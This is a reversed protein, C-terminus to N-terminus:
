SLMHKDIIAGSFNAVKMFSKLVDKKQQMVAELSLRSEEQKARNNAVEWPELPGGRGALTTLHIHMHTPGGFNVRSLNTGSLNAGDLKVQHFNAGSLDAGSLDAGSLDSGSFDTDHSVVNKL